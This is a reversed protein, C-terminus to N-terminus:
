ALRESAMNELNKKNDGSYLFSVALTGFSQIGSWCHYQSLNNTLRVFDSFRFTIKFRKSCHSYTVLQSLSLLITSVSWFQSDFLSAKTQVLSCMLGWWSESNHSQNRGFWSQFSVYIWRACCSQWPPLNGQTLLTLKSTAPLSALCSNERPLQKHTYRHALCHLTEVSDSLKPRNPVRFHGTARNKLVYWSFNWWCALNAPSIPLAISYCVWM